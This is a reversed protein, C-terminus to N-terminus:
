FHNIHYIFIIFLYQCFAAFFLSAGGGRPRRESSVGGENQEQRTNLTPEQSSCPFMLSPSYGILKSKEIFMQKKQVYM